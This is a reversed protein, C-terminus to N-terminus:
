FRYGLGALGIHYREDFFGVEDSVDSYLYTAFAYVGKWGFIDHQSIGLKAKWIDSERTKDFVINKSDYDRKGYALGFNVFTKELVPVNGDLKVGYGDYSEASGDANKTDYYVGVSVGYYKVGVEFEHINGERKLSQVLSEKDYNDQAYVYRGFVDLKDSFSYTHELKVGYQNRDVVERDGIQYPNAYAEQRLSAILAVDSKNNGYNLGYGVSLGSIDRGNYSKLYVEDDALLGKYALEIGLFPIGQTSDNKGNLSKLRNEDLSPDLNSEGKKFGGGLSLNGSFGSDNASNGASDGAALAVSACLTLGLIQKVM